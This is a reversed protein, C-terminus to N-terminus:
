KRYIRDLFETPYNNYCHFNHSLMGLASIQSHLGLRSQWRSRIQKVIKPVSLQVLENSISSYNRDTSTSPSSTNLFELGCLDQAWRYPKGLLKESLISMFDAPDISLEKLQFPPFTKNFNPKRILM